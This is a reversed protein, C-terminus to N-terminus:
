SKGLTSRVAITASVHWYSHLVFVHPISLFELAAEHPLAKFDAPSTM